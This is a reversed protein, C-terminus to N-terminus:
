VADNHYIGARKSFIYKLTEDLDVSAAAFPWFPSSVTFATLRVLTLALKAELKDLEECLRRVEM